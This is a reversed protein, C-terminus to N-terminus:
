IMEDGFYDKGTKIELLTSALPSAKSRLFTTLASLFNVEYEMETTSVLGTNMMVRTFFVVFQQYGGWPDVRTNGVRIKMFNTSRPDKEVEWLGALAGLLIVSSIIGVFSGFDKWAKKELMNILRSYHNLQFYDVSILGLSFFMANAAPALAGLKGGIPARGSANALYDIYDKMNKHIDFAEGEKLVIEGSAIKSQIRLQAHYFDEILTLIMDNIGTEFARQSWNVWPISKDTLRGLFSENDLFGFEETRKYAPLALNM